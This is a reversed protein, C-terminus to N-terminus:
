QAGGVLMQGDVIVTAPRSGLDLPHGSWLVLDADLGAALRGVRTEVGAIRAATDTLASWAVVPDLGQGICSAASIRLM